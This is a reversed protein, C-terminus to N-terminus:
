RIKGKHPPEGGFNDGKRKPGVGVHRLCKTKSFCRAVLIYTPHVYFTHHKEHFINIRFLGGDEIGSVREGMIM